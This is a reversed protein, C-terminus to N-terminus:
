WRLVRNAWVLFDELSLVRIDKESDAAMFLKNQAAYKLWQVAGPKAGSGGVVIFITKEPMTEVCNLYLYPFKEDVSGSTQQWKCEIRIELNLDKSLLLFETKGSHGYITTYPVNRLLLESGFDLPRKHYESYPVVEFGKQEVTSVITQELISGSSNAYGGQSSPKKM